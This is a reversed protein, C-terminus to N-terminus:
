MAEKYSHWKAQLKGDADRYVIIEYLISNCSEHATKLAAKDEDSLTNSSISPHFHFRATPSPIGEAYVGNWPTMQVSSTFSSFHVPRYHIASGDSYVDGGTEDNPTLLCMQYANASSEFEQVYYTGIQYYGDSDRVKNEAFKLVVRGAQIQEPNNSARTALYYKSRDGCLRILESSSSICLKMLDKKQEISFNKYNPFRKLLAQQAEQFIVYIDDISSDFVSVSDDRYELEMRTTDGLFLNDFLIQAKTYDFIEQSKSIKTFEDTDFDLDFYLYDSSCSTTLVIVGLILMIQKANM